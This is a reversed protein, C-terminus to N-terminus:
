FKKYCRKQGKINYNIKEVNKPEQTVTQSRNNKSKVYFKIQIKKERPLIVKNDVLNTFTRSDLQLFDKVFNELYDKGIEDTNELSLEFMSNFKHCNKCFIKRSFNVINADVNLNKVTIVYM